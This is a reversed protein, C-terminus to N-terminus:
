MGPTWRHTDASRRFEVPTMGTHKKFLAHFYQRSGVGVYDSIDSIPIDTQGLLMKAKEMRLDTLYETLTRGTHARFIRQLYGPHLSVAAAVDKVRIDRDYNQYLYDVSQRVYLEMPASDGRASETWLRGIRILLQSLLLRSLTGGEMGNKDLELVLSRLTHYADEPDRLMAYPESLTLLAQLPEDESALARLSPVAGTREALGFEVNLMRCKGDVILRHGANANLIVFEGKKLSLEPGGDLEVRCVGSIVYMIETSDHRHYAMEFRNWEKFYYAHVRPQFDGELWEAPFLGLRELGSGGEIDPIRM